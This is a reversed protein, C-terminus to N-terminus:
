QSSVVYKDLWNNNNWINRSFACMVLGNPLNFFYWFNMGACLFYRMMNYLFLTPDLGNAQLVRSVAIQLLDIEMYCRLTPYM